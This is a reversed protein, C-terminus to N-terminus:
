LINDYFVSVVSDRWDEPKADDRESVQVQESKM